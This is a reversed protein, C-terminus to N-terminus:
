LLCNNELLSEESRLKQLLGTSVQFSQFNEAQVLQYFSCEKCSNYKQAFTGQVVGSCFTGAVVWCARGANVGGHIGDLRKESAAPCVGLEKVNRGYPERGCHKYEWCNQKMTM